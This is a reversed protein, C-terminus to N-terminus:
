MMLARALKLLFQQRALVAAVHQIIQAPYDAKLRIELPLIFVLLSSDLECLNGAEKEGKQGKEEEKEGKGM